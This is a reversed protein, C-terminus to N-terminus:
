VGFMSPTWTICRRSAGGIVGRIKAACGGVAAASQDSTFSQSTDM